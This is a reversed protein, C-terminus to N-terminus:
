DSPTLAPHRIGAARGLFFVCDNTALPILQQRTM